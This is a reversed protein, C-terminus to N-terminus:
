GFLMKTLGALTITVLIPAVFRWTREPHGQGQPAIELAPFVWTGFLAGFVALAVSAISILVFQWGHLEFDFVYAAQFLGYLFLGPLGFFGLATGVGNRHM